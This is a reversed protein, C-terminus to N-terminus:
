RPSVKRVFTVLFLALLFYALLAEMLGVGRAWDPM